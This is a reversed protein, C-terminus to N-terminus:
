ETAGSDRLLKKADSEIIRHYLATHGQNDCENVDAGADLLMKVFTYQNEDYGVRMLATLGKLDKANVDAKADLLMRVIEVPAKSVAIMLATQGLIDKANVDAGAEILMKAIGPKGKSIAEMLATTKTGGTLAGNPNAGLGLYLKVIAEDYLNIATMLLKGDLEEQTKKVIEAGRAKLFQAVDHKSNVVAYHFANTGESSVVSIDAGHKLLLEVMELRGVAAAEMLPTSKAATMTNVDMKADILMGMIKPSSHKIANFIIKGDNVNAGSEILFRIFEADQGNQVAVFLPTVDDADEFNVDAGNELLMKALELNGYYAAYTLLTFETGENSCAANPDAGAQILERIKGVDMVAQPDESALVKAIKMDYYELMQEDTLPKPKRMKKEPEPKVAEFPKTTDIKTVDQGFIGEKRVKEVIPDPKKGNGALATSNKGEMIM